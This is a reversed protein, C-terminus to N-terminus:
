PTNSYGLEADRQTRDFLAPAIALYGAAAYGDAVERIHGNVGFIEQIVVIGGRPKGDPEARYAALEHGDSATLKITEGM